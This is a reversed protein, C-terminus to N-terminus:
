GALPHTVQLLVSSREVEAEVKRGLFDTVGDLLRLYAAAIHEHKPQSRLCYWAPEARIQPIVVGGALMSTKMVRFVETKRLSGQRVKPLAAAPFRASRPHYACGNLCTFSFPELPNRCSCKSFFAMFTISLALFLRDSDSSIRGEFRSIRDM